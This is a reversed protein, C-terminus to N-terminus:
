RTACRVGHRDIPLVHRIFGPVEPTDDGSLGVGLALVTPGAGSIVAAVGDARLRAVLASSAGLASVRYDQHLRDATAAPLTEPARTLAHILLAARGATFAADPHPVTDPLLGRTAATSSRVDPVYAVPTLDLVEPRALRFGTEDRWVIVLGGFMSAAANDAHGEFRAALNLASEDLERGALAYAGAVGAVAAGASSGLGRAHPIRNVCRLAVGPVSLGVADAARLLARIVLHSADKPVEAAGEGEVTVTHGGDVLDIELEDYLGLALGIADFGPGLNASSAPM